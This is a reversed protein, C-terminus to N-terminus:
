YSPMTKGLHLKVPVPGSCRVRKCPRPSARPVPQTHALEAAAGHVYICLTCVATHPMQAYARVRSCLTALLYYTHLRHIEIPRSRPM